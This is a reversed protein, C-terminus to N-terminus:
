NEEDVSVDADGVMDAEEDSVSEAEDVGPGM